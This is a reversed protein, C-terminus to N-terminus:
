EFTVAELHPTVAMKNNQMLEGHFMDVSMILMNLFQSKTFASRPASAHGDQMM